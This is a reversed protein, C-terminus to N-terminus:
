PAADASLLIRVDAWQGFNEEISVRLATLTAVSKLALRDILEAAFWEGILEATTNAVPLVLCDEEPFVWRREEFRVEVSRMAADHVVSISPHTAPLLMRHDLRGVLAMAADRLAIFDFVYGNEDLDGEVSVDVRWNHGHLRECVNGNFTIFHAASFVLSDKTVRAAFRRSPDPMM